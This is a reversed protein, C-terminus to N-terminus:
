LTTYLNVQYFHVVGGFTSLLSSAWFWLVIGALERVLSLSSKNEQLFM